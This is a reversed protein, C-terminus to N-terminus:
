ESLIRMLNRVTMNQVVKSEHKYITYLILVFKVLFDFPFAITLRDFYLLFIDSM